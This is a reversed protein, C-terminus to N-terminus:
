NRVGKTQRGRAIVDRVQSGRRLKGHGRSSRRWHQGRGGQRSLGRGCLVTREVDRSKHMPTGCRWFDEQKTVRVNLSHFERSTDGIAKGIALSTIKNVKDGFQKFVM